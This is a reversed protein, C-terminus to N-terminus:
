QPDLNALLHRKLNIKFMELNDVIRLDRPLTNWLSAGHYEFSRKLAETRPKTLALTVDANRLSYNHSLNRTTFLKQLNHPAM